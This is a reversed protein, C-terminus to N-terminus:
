MGADGGCKEVDTENAWAETESDEGKRQGSCTGSDWSASLGGKGSLSSGRKGEKREGLRPCWVGSM